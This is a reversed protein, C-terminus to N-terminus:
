NLVRNLYNLLNDLSHWDGSGDLPFIPYNPIFECNIDECNKKRCPEGNFRPALNRSPIFFHTNKLKDDVEEITNVNFFDKLFVEESATPSFLFEGEPTTRYFANRINTVLLDFKEYPYSDKHKSLQEVSYKGNKAVREIVEDGMTRSRMVKIQCHPFKVVRSSSSFSDNKALKCEVRLKKNNIRNKIILDSDTSGLQPNGKEKIIEYRKDSSLTQLLAEQLTYEFGIGRIMPVVKPENVIEDLYSFVLGHRDCYNKLNRITDLEKSM